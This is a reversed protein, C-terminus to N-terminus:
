SKFFLVHKWPSYYDHYHNYRYQALRATASDGHYLTTTAPIALITMEKIFPLRRIDQKKEIMNYGVFLSFPSSSLEGILVRTIIDTM